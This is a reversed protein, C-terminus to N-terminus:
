DILNLKRFRAQLTNWTSDLAWGLTEGKIAEFLTESDLSYYQESWYQWASVLQADTLAALQRYLDKDRWCFTCYIDEKIADILPAANYVPDPQVTPNIQTAQQIAIAKTIRSTLVAAIILVFASLIITEEPKRKYTTNLKYAAYGTILVPILTNINKQLQKTM